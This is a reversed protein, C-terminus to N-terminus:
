VPAGFLRLMNNFAKDAIDVHQRRRDFPDPTLKIMQLQELQRIWRLATTAPVAAGICLSSVSTKREELKAVCLDLLMDWAPDAFIDAPLFQERKRRRLIISKMQILIRNEDTIPEPSTGTDTISALSCLTSSIKTTLEALEELYAARIVNRDVEHTIKSKANWTRRSNEYV